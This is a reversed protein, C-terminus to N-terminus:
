SAGVVVWTVINPGSIVFSLAPSLRGWLSFGWFRKRHPLGAWLQRWLVRSQFFLLPLLLLLLTEPFTPPFMILQTKAGSKPDVPLFIAGSCGFPSPWCTVSKCRCSLLAWAARQQNWIALLIGQDMSAVGEGLVALGSTCTSSHNDWVRPDRALLISTSLGSNWRWSQRQGKDGPIIIIIAVHFLLFMLYKSHFLTDCKYLKKLEPSQQLHKILIFKNYYEFIDLSKEWCDVYNTKFDKSNNSSGM